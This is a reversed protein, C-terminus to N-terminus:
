ETVRIMGRLDSHTCFVSGNSIATSGLAFTHLQFLEYKWCVNERGTVMKHPRSTFLLLCRDWVLSHLLNTNKWGSLKLVTTCFHPVTILHQRLSTAIIWDHFCVQAPCSLVYSMLGHGYGQWHHIETVQEVVVPSFRQLRVSFNYFTVGPDRLHRKCAQPNFFCILTKLEWLHSPSVLFYM